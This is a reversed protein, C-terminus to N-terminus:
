LSSNLIKARNVRFLSVLYIEDKTLPKLIQGQASRENLFDYIADRLQTVMCGHLWAKATCYNLSNQHECRAPLITSRILCNFLILTFVLLKVETKAKM